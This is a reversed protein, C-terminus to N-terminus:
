SAKNIERVWVRQTGDFKFGMEKLLARNNYLARKSKEVAIEVGDKVVIEIGLEKLSQSNNQLQPAKQTLTQKKQQPINADTDEESAIGFMSSIAYRRLYTICAGMSQYSNMGKLNEFPSTVETEIFEGSSHLLLTKITVLGGEKDLNQSQIITLGHKAIIPRVINLVEDLPAYKYGYGNSSKIANRVEATVKVLAVSINKIENSTRMKCEKEINKIKKTKKAVLLM